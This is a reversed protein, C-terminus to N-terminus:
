AGAEAHKENHANKKLMAHGGSTEIEIRTFIADIQKMNVIARKLRTSLENLENTKEIIAVEYTSRMTELNARMQQLEKLDDKMISILQM